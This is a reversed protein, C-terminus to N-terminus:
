IRSLSCCVTINVGSKKLGEFTILVKISKRTNKNRNYLMTYCSQHELNHEVLLRPFGVLMPYCSHQIEADFTTALRGFVNTNSSGSTSQFEVQKHNEVALFM